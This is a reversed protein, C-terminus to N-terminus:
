RRPHAHSRWDISKALLAGAAFAAGLVLFPSRGAGTPRTGLQPGSPALPAHAAPEADKPAEGKARALILSPKLRRLFAADDALEDALRAALGGRVATKRALADLRDAGREVLEDGPTRQQDSM